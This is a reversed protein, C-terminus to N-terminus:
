NRFLTATGFTDLSVIPKKFYLSRNRGMKEFKEYDTANGTIYKEDVGNARMARWKYHDGALWVQSINSFQINNAIQEPILHNHYDIIPMSKAFDHYLKQATKTQLLFNEDLFSKM